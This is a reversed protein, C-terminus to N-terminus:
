QGARRGNEFAQGAIWAVQEVGGLEGIVNVATSTNGCMVILTERISKLHETQQEAADALRKLSIARSLDVENGAINGPDGLPPGEPDLALPELAERAIM